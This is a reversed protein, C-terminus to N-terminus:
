LDGGSVVLTQALSGVLLQQYFFAMAPVCLWELELFLL